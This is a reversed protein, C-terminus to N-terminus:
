GIYGPLGPTCHATEWAAMNSPDTAGGAKKSGNAADSLRQAVNNLYTKLDVGGTTQGAPADAALKKANAAARQLDSKSKFPAIGTSQAAIVDVLAANVGGHNWLSDVEACFAGGSGPAGAGGATNSGGCATFTMAGLLALGSM